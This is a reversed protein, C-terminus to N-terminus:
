KKKKKQQRKLREEGLKIARDIREETLLTHLKQGM